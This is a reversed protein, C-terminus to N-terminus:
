RERYTDQLTEVVEALQALKPAPAAGPAAAPSGRRAAGCTRPSRSRRRLPSCARRRAPSVRLVRVGDGDDCATWVARSLATLAKRRNSPLRYRPSRAVHENYGLLDQRGMKGDTRRRAVHAIEQSHIHLQMDGDRSTHQLGTQAAALDAEHWQGTQGGSSGPATRAPAPTM